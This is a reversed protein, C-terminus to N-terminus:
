ACKYPQGDSGRGREVRGANGGGSAHNQCFEQRVPQVGLGHAPHCTPPNNAAVLREGELKSRGYVGLPAVPDSEDYAADVPKSGDFVYDTSLHLIPARVGAAAMALAGAGDANIAFAAAEESEAQDVATYAGANIVITPKYARIAADLSDPNTLDIDPRGVVAAEIGAEVTKEKLSLAVQGSAGAVFLRLTM